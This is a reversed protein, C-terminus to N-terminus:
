VPEHTRGLSFLSGLGGLMAGGLVMSGIALPPLFQFLSLDLFVEVMPRLWTILLSFLGFLLAVALSAGLLGQLVGELFFPGKIL